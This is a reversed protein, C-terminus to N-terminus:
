DSTAERLTARRDAIVDFEAATDGLVLLAYYRFYTVVPVSVVATLALIVLLAVLGLGGLAALTVLGLQGGGALFVGFGIVGFPILLVVAVTGLVLSVLVGVALRLVFAIVAYVAYEQWDVRLTPWFRRWGDLVTTGELLMVPVVFDTTFGLTLATVLVVLMVLPLALLGVAILRGPSHIATPGGAVLFAGGLVAVVGTLGLLGVGLRFGFLRLGGRWYRRAYQRLHVAEQRLSEVLVFEM